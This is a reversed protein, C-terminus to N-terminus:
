VKPWSTRYRHRGFRTTVLREIDTYPRDEGDPVPAADKRWVIGIWCRESLEIVADVFAREDMALSRLLPGLRLTGGRRHLTGFLNRADLSAHPSDIIETSV